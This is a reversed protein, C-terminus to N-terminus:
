PHFLGVLYGYVHVSVFLRLRDRECIQGSHRDALPSFRQDVPLQAFLEPMVFCQVADEGTRRFQFFRSFESQSAYGTWVRISEATPLVRGAYVSPMAHSYHFSRRTVPPRLRPMELPGDAGAM